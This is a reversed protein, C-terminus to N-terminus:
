QLSHWFTSLGEASSKDVKECGSRNYRIQQDVNKCVTSHRRKENENSQKLSNVTEHIFSCSFLIENLSDNSRIEYIQRIEVGEASYRGNSNPNM